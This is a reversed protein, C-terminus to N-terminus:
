QDPQHNDPIHASEATVSDPPCAVFCNLKLNHGDTQVQIAGDHDTRLIRIGDTQLRQLPEPSPHGYPNQDDASIIAVQPSVAALFEPM